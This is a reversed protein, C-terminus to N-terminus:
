PHAGQTPPLRRALGLCLGWAFANDFWEADFDRLRRLEFLLAESYDQADLSIQAAVFPACRVPRYPYSLKDFRFRKPFNPQETQEMVTPGPPFREAPDHHDLLMLELDPVFRSIILSEQTRALPLVPKDLHLDPFIREGIWDCVSRFFPQRSTVRERFDTFQDKLIREDSGSDALRDRLIGFYREAAHLWATVPVLYWSFPLQDSLSWVLNFEEDASKLLAM